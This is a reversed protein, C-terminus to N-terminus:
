NTSMRRVAPSTCFCGLKADKDATLEWHPLYLLWVLTAGAMAGLIQAPVYVWFKSFDGTLIAAACTMAPTLQADASGWGAVAGVGGVGGVGWWATIALWGAGEGKSRKLLAGAVVGNGLLILVMTGMFEGMFPSVLSHGMM